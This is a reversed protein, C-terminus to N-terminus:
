LGSRSTDTEQGGQLYLVAALLVVSGLVLLVPGSDNALSGLVGAAIGGSLAAAWAPRDAVPRLLEKRRRIGLVIAAIAVLTAVPMLGRLFANVALTTRRQVVDWLAGPSEADLITSSFHSDGGTLLDVAALAAIALVPIACAIAIARRSPGGPLAALTAAAGGAAITIVGGVDAGLRGAGVVAGLLLMAGAFTAALRTSRAATGAAAAIGILLLV